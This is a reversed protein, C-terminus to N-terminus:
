EVVVEIEAENKVEGRFLTTIKLKSTGKKLGKFIYYETGSDGGSMKEEHKKDFEIKRSELIFIEKDTIYYDSGVGVSGHSEHGFYFNEGVKVTIKSTSLLNITKMNKLNLKETKETKDKKEQANVINLM